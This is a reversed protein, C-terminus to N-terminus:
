VLISHISLSILLCYIMNKSPWRHLEALDLDKEDNGKPRAIEVPLLVNDIM